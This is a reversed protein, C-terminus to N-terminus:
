HATFHITQVKHYPVQLEQWEEHEAIGSKWNCLAFCFTSSHPACPFMAKIHGFGQRDSLSPNRQAQEKGWILFTNRCLTQWNYFCSDLIQGYPVLPSAVMRGALDKWSCRELYWARPTIVVCWCQWFTSCQLAGTTSSHARPLTEKQLSGGQVQAIGVCPWLEGPREEQLFSHQELLCDQIIYNSFQVGKTKVDGSKPQTGM